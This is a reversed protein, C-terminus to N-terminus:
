GEARWYGTIRGQQASLSCENKFHARLQKAVQTETAGWVASPHQSLMEVAGLLSFGSQKGRLMWSLHCGRPLLVDDLSHRDEVDGIELLVRLPHEHAWSELLAAITPLATEDGLLLGPGASFDPFAEARGGMATVTDGARLKLAWRSGPTDDHCYVDVVARGAEMRRLTYPRSAPYEGEQAEDPLAFRCAYGATWDPRTDEGLDLVLRQFHPTLTRNETVNWQAVRQEPFIRLKKMAAMVTTRIAEYAPANVTYPVFVSNHDAVSIVSIQMGHVFLATIQAGIAEQVTTFARVCFLLEPQHDENVHQIIYTAEETQIPGLQAPRDTQAASM